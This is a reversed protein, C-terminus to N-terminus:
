HNTSVISVQRRKTKWTGYGSESSEPLPSSTRHSYDTRVPPSLPDVALPLSTTSHLALKSPRKSRESSYSNTESDSHFAEEIKDEKYFTNMSQTRMRKLSSRKLAIKERLLKDFKIPLSSDNKDMNQDDTQRNLSNNLHSRNKSIQYNLLRRQERIEEETSDLSTLSSAISMLSANRDVAKHPSGYSSDSVSETSILRDYTNTDKKTTVIERNDSSPDNEKNESLIEGNKGLDFTSQGLILRRSIADPSKQGQRELFSRNEDTLVSLWRSKINSSKSGDSATSLDGGGSLPTSAAARGWGMHGAVSMRGSRRQDRRLPSLSLQQESKSRKAIKHKKRINNVLTAFKNASPPLQEPSDAAEEQEVQQWDLLNSVLPSMANMSAKRVDTTNLSYILSGHKVHM